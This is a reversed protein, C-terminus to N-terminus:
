SNPTPKDVLRDMFDITNKIKGWKMVRDSIENTHMVANRVPKIEIADDERTHTRHKRRKRKESTDKKSQSEKVIDVLFGLEMLDLHNLDHNEKVIEDHLSHTPTGNEQDGKRNQVTEICDAVNVDKPFNKKLVEIDSIGRKKLFARFLNELVFLDQYIETNNKALDRLTKKLSAKTEDDLGSNDIKEEFDKNRANRSEDLSRRHKPIKKNYPDGDQRHARRLDDWQNSVKALINDKITELLDKYLNDEPKIGERSTTFRDENNGSNEDDLIDLHIQGYIYSAIHRTAYSPTHKLINTERLRGNVFVDVGTKESIGFINLKIPKEVSAIFGKINKNIIDLNVKEKFHLIELFPDNFENINWLFETSDSLKDLDGVGIKTENVFISFSPDVLSFRFYLAILRRLTEINNNIGENTNEFYIITGHEHGRKLNEFISKDLETLKYNKSEDKNESDIAKDLEGNDIVAGMYETDSTKSTIHIRQACSLLALKGIGKGGILPRGEPARANDDERRSYGVNLFKKRFDTESMGHGDDKISFCRSEKYIDIWVNKAGADWSNSIAEGLITIFNRYLGRGLHNLVNLSINFYYPEKEQEAM